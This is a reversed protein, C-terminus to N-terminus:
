ERVKALADILERPGKSRFLRCVSIFVVTTEGFGFESRGEERGVGPTWRTVDIGNPVVHIREPPIGGDVLTGRVFESIAIIGNARPLSWTLLKSMWSADYGVHAHVACPVRTIRSLMVCAFADRPRDSTYILEIRRRRILVALRFFSVIAPLT